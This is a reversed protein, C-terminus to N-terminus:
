RLLLEAMARLVAACILIIALFSSITAALPKGAAKVVADRNNIKGELALVEKQINLYLLRAAIFDQRDRQVLKDNDLMRALTGLNGSTAADKLHKQIGERTARGLFRRVSPEVLPLLWGALQPVSDPGYRYQLESYLSLLMLGRLPSGEPQSLPSFNGDSRKDRVLIFAAIHRDIPERSRNGSGAVRELAPLLMKLSAVYQGRLLPSFCPAGPNLEYVVREVGNGM